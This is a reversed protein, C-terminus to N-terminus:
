QDHERIVCHYIRLLGSPEMLQLSVSSNEWYLLGLEIFLVVNAKLCEIFSALYLENFEITIM